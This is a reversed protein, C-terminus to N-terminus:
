KSPRGASRGTVPAPANKPFALWCRVLFGGSDRNSLRLTGGMGTLLRDALYLGLGSGPQAAHDAGRFFKETLRPLEDPPAGPGADAFRIALGDDELAFTVEVPTGAYKAANALINAAVQTLRVRDARVVCAPAPAIAASGAFDAARVIAAVESGTLDTVNLTLSELDDLTATFLDTVLTDIQDAKAQISTLATKTKPEQTQLATVEAVAEISSVPTKIDHALSAVLEQNATRAKAEARRARALEERMLDFSETFAGFANSRDMPLPADLQGAAIRRAFGQMQQFPRLVRRQVVALGALAVGVALTTIGGAV